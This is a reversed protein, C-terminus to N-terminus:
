GFLERGWWDGVRALGPPIAFLASSVHKIYENLADHRGLLRQLPVFQQHADKQYALFFLGSDIQGTERVIGDAYNYGRRLIDVGKHTLSAALGVHSDAPLSSAKFASHEHPHGLPAGTVKTRGISREQDDLSNTDWAEIQM